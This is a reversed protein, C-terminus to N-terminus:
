PLPNRFLAVAEDFKQQKLTDVGQLILLKSQALRARFEHLGSLEDLEKKANTADGQTRLAM